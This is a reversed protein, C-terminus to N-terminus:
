PRGTRPGMGKRSVALSLRFKKWFLVDGSGNSTGALEGRSSKAAYSAGIQVALARTDLSAGRDRQGQPRSQRPPPQAAHLAGEPAITQRSGAYQLIAFSLHQLPLM